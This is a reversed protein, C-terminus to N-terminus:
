QLFTRYSIMPKPTFAKKVEENMCLLYVNKDIIKQLIKLRPYFTVVFPIEKETKNNVRNNREDCLVQRWKLTLLKNLIVETLSGHNLNLLTSLTVKKCVSERLEKGEGRTWIVFIDVIYRFCVLTKFDPNRFYM